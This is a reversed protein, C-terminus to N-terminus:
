MLKTGKECVKLMEYGAVYLNNWTKLKKRAKSKKGKTEKLVQSM